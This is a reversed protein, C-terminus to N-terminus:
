RSEPFNFSQELSVFRPDNRLDDLLPDIRISLLDVSHSHIEQDLLRFAEDREGLAGHVIAFDYNSVTDSRKNNQLQKLVKEAEDRQGARAYFVGLTALCHATPDLQLAKKADRIAEDLRGLKFFALARYEYIGTDDPNAVFARDCQEIAGEYEGKGIYAWALGTLIGSSLPNLHHATELEAISEEIRKMASLYVEGYWHHALEDNPNLEIARRFEREAGLWDHDYDMKIKALLAHGEALSNDLALAKELMARARPQYYEPSQGLFTGLLNYNEGLAIYALTYRPDLAVVRELIRISQKFEAVSSRGRAFKATLYLRYAENNATPYEAFVLRKETAGNEQIKNSLLLTLANRLKLLDGEPAELKEQWISQKTNLDVLRTEIVLHGDEKRVKGELLRNAQLVQKVKDYGAPQTRMKRVSSLSIVRCTNAQGVNRILDDALGMSLFDMEPNGTQNDFPMIALNTDTPYVIGGLYSWSENPPSRWFLKRNGGTTDPIFIELNTLVNRIQLGSSDSVKTKQVLNFVNEIGNPQREVWVDDGSRFFQRRGPDPLIDYDVYFALALSGPAPHLRDTATLSERKLFYSGALGIVITVLGILVALAFVKRPRSQQQWYSGFETILRPRKFIVRTAPTPPLSRNTLDDASRISEDDQVIDLKLRNLDSVFAKASLYRQDADKQLTKTLVEMLQSAQGRSLQPFAVPKPERLLVGASVDSPTEGEFPQHGALMEYLTVGLSWVDTRADVAVGRVQEPSMYATTGMVMGPRTDFSSTSKGKYERDVDPNTLKALGFDLVKVYGDRRVMINEPKIDRHVVGADHAAALTQAVQLTVELARAIDISGERILERVTKGEVFEMALYYRDDILGFEYVHAVNPHSIASAALAEQKFRLASEKGGVLSLPLLKLAVLRELRPDEALFVNGMGGSGLPRIITYAAFSEGTSFSEESTHALVRAGLTLAHQSLFDDAQAVEVEDILSNVEDRLAKDGACSEGLFSDREGAPRALTANFLEEIKEWRNAEM